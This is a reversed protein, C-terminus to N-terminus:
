ERSRCSTPRRAQEVESSRRGGARACRSRSPSGPEAPRRAGSASAADADRELFAMRKVVAELTDQVADIADKHRGDRDVEASSKLVSVDDSLSRALGAVSKMEAGAAAADDGERPPREGISRRTDELRKEITKLSAQIHALGAPETRRDDLIRAIREIQAELDAVDGAGRASDARAAQRHARMLEGLNPEDAPTRPASRLERRLAVIDSRLEALDEQPSLEGGASFIRAIDDLKRELRHVQEAIAGGQGGSRRDEKGAPRFPEAPDRM